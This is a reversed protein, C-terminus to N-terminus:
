SGIGNKKAEVPYSLLRVHLVNLRTVFMRAVDLLLQLLQEFIEGARLSSWELVEERGYQKFVLWDSQAHPVDDVCRARVRKATADNLTFIHGIKVSLELGDECAINLGPGHAHAFRKEIWFHSLLQLWVNHYTSIHPFVVLFSARSKRSSVRSHGYVDTFAIWQQPYQFLRRFLDL